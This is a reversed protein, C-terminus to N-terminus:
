SKTESNDIPTNLITQPSDGTQTITPQDPKKSGPNGGFFYLLVTSLLTNMVFGLAVNAIQVNEKPITCFIICALLTIGSVFSGVAFWFVMKYKFDDM